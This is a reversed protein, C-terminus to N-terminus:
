PQAMLLIQEPVVDDAEEVTMVFKYPEKVVVSSKLPIYNESQWQSAYLKGLNVPQGQGQTDYGWVQYFTGTAPQPLQKIHLVGRQQVNAWVLAGEINKVQPNLTRLLNVTKSDPVQQLSKFKLMAETQDVPMLREGFWYWGAGMLVIVTLLAWLWNQRKGEMMLVKGNVSHKCDVV